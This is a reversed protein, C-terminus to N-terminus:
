ASAGLTTELYKWIDSSRYKRRVTWYIALQSDELHTKAITLDILLSHLCPIGLFENIRGRILNSNTWFRFLPWKKLTEDVKVDLYFESTRAYNWIRRLTSFCTECLMAAFLDKRFKKIPTIPTTICTLKWTSLKIPM